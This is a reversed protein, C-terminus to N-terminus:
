QRGRGHEWSAAGSEGVVRRSRRGSGSIVVTDSMPLGKIACGVRHQTQGVIAPEPRSPRLPLMLPGDVRLLCTVGGGPRVVISTSM